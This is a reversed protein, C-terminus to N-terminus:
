RPISPANVPYRLPMLPTDFPANVPYQRPMLPANVPCQRPISPTDFPCQRPIFPTDLAHWPASRTRRFRSGHENKKPPAPQFTLQLLQAIPAGNLPAPERFLPVAAASASREQIFRETWQRCASAHTDVQTYVRACVHGHSRRGARGDTWGDMRGDTRRPRIRM